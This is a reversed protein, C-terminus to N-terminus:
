NFHVSYVIAMVHTLTTFILRKLMKYFTDTLLISPDRDGDWNPKEEDVTASYIIENTVLTTLLYHTIM